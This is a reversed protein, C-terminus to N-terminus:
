VVHNHRLFVGMLNSNSHSISLLIILELGPEHYPKEQHNFKILVSKWVKLIQAVLAGYTLAFLEGSVKKPDTGRLTARSTM